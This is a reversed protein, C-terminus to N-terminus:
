SFLLVESRDVTEALLEAVTKKLVPHV